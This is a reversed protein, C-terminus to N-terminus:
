IKANQIQKKNNNNNNNNQKVTDLKERTMHQQMTKSQYNKYRHSYTNTMTLQPAHKCANGKIYGM